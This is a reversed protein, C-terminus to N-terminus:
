YVGYDRNLAEVYEKEHVETINHNEAKLNKEFIDRGSEFLKLYHESMRGGHSPDYMASGMATRMDDLAALMNRSYVLSYYNDKLVNDSEESLKEVYYSCFVALTLIILFLFGLGWTIKRQLTM